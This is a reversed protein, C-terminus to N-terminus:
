TTADSAEPQKGEARSGASAKADIETMGLTRRAGDGRFFPVQAPRVRSSVRGPTSLLPTAAEVRARHVATAYAARATNLRRGLLAKPCELMVLFVLYARRHRAAM